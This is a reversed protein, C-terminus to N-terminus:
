APHHSRHVVRDWGRGVGGRPPCLGELPNADDSDEYVEVLRWRADYIFYRWDDEGSELVGDADTDIREGTRYGLGNYRYQSLLDNTTRNRIEVLRGLVDYTYTYNEGDDTLDGRDNYSRTYTVDTVTDNDTDKELSTMENVINFIGTAQFEGTDSYNPPNSGTRELDHAQWNGVTSLDWTEVEVAPLTVGSGSGAGRKSEVLRNLGDNGFEYNFYNDFVHDTVGTVNSNDDWIVSIDYFPVESAPANFQRVRNWRSHVPRNFDDLADFNGAGDHLSSYIPYGSVNTPYRTEIVTDVGMYDYESVVVSNYTVSSLRSMASPGGNSGSVAAYGYDVDGGGPLTMGAMRLARRGGAPDALEWLHELTKPDFAGAAGDPDQTFEALNSWGDYAIEVRDIEADSGDLQRVNALRGIAAYELEIRAVAGDFGTEATLALASVRGPLDYEFEIENGAPDIRKGLNSTTYHFEEVGSDPYTIKRLLDRSPWQDGTVGSAVYGYTTTQTGTDDEAIYEILQGNLYTWETVRNEDDAGMTPPDVYNEIQSIVRGAADYDRKQIRGLPDTVEGLRGAADYAYLTTLSDPMSGGDPDFTMSADTGGTGYFSMTTLRDLEDYEYLTIQARGELDAPDVTTTAITSYSNSDLKGRHESSGYDNATRETVAEMLVLGTAKDLIRHTEREVVDGTVDGADAYTSHNVGSMEYVAVERGLRDYEFKALTDGQERILRGAADYTYSWTLTEGSVAAGTAPDIKELSRRVVRGREDYDISLFAVRNTEASDPGHLDPDYEPFIDPAMEDAYALYLGDLVDSYIAISTVRGLNDYRMAYYPATARQLFVPRGHIDNQIAYVNANGTSRLCGGSDANIDACNCYGGTENGNADTQQDGDNSAAGRDQSLLPSPDFSSISREVIYGRSNRILTQVTGSMAAFEILDGAADFMYSAADYNNQRVGVGSVPVDHYLSQDSPILGTPNYSKITLSALDGLSAALIPDSETDDIWAAPSSSSSAVGITAEVVRMGEDNWVIYDFPGLFILGMM